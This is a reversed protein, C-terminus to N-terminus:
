KIVVSVSRTPSFYGNRVFVDKKFLPLTFNRCIFCSVIFCFYQWFCSFLYQLHTRVFSAHCGTQRYAATRMKSSEGNGVLQWKRVYKIWPGKRFLFLMHLCEFMTNASIYVNPFNFKKVFFYITTFSSIFMWSLLM